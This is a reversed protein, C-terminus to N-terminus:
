FLYMSDAFSQGGPTCEHRSPRTFSNRLIPIVVDILNSIIGLLKPSIKNFFYRYIM